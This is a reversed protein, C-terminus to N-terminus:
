KKKKINIRGFKPKYYLKYKDSNEKNKEQYELEFNLKNKDFNQHIDDRNKMNNIHDNLNKLDKFLKGCAPCSPSEKDLLGKPAKVIVPFDKKVRLQRETHRCFHRIL